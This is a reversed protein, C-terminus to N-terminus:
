AVPSVRQSARLLALEKLVDKLDCVTLCSKTLYPEWNQKKSITGYTSFCVKVYLQKRLSDAQLCKMMDSVKGM